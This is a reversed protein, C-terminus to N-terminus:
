NMRANTKKLAEMLLQAWKEHAELMPYHGVKELLILKSNKMENHHVKAVDAGTIPDSEGWLINTSIDTKVLGGVWRHWFIVRDRLYQTIKALVTKGGNRILLEWMGDLDEQKLKSKDHWLQKMNKEFIRKSSLRAVLPGILKNRLLKQIVRLKALEIHVSGNCLTLSLLRIPAFGMNRRAIIETAVSTGYDHAVLHASKIKLHQWLLIAIDAQEMLSYSYNQPKESFGFGLHDHVVVRYQKELIPLVKQYDLSSTPYGHLICLPQKKGGSDYVFIQRDQIRVYSGKKEWEEPNM